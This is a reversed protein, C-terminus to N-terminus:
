VAWCWSEDQFVCPNVLNGTPYYPFRVEVGNVAGGYSSHRAGAASLFDSIETPSSKAILPGAYMGDLQGSANYHARSVITAIDAGDLSQIQGLRNELETPSNIPM